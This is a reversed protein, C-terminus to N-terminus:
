AEKTGNQWFAMDVIKMVPYKIETMENVEQQAEIIAAKNKLIYDLLSSLGNKDFAKKIKEKGLTKKFYADYAPVCSFTGLLIKTILTDSVKTIEGTCDNKYYTANHLFDAIKSKLETVGDLYKSQDFGAAFPDVDILYAYKDECLLAVMPILFKYDKQLMFSSGRLMGWSGLFAFLHLALEERKEEKGRNEIFFTHCHDYSRYRGHEDERYVNAYILAKEFITNM